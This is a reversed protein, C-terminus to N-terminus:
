HALLSLCSEKEFTFVHVTLKQITQPSTIKHIQKNTYNLKIFHMEYDVPSTLKHNLWKPGQTCVFNGFSIWSLNKHVWLIKSHVIHVLISNIKILYYFRFASFYLLCM